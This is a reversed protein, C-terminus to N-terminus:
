EDSAERVVIRSGEVKTIKVKQDRGIFRGESVVDLYEGELEATGSPRLPTVTRATRGILELRNASSVYGSETDTADRLVIRNLLHLRKGFFKMMIVMGLITIVLATIVSVAMWAPDAGALIIGAVMAVGGLIGLIGGPVFLEAILLGVGALFLLLSEYGALGAVLHGYFFLLLAGAGMSGPVGFGPSYLEVVLGLGAISLLIPVVVPNTIFRALKESFTENMKVIEAGELGSTALLDDFSSVTGESYKVELAEDASLTLLKGKEARYQPLDIDANAMALAFEPDRGSSEAAAKMSALWASNAKDDAANGSQDIVQAAGIRGNPHMYIEDAHLALFAGASLADRNIYAIVHLKTEDMLKAIRGAADVFGGPTNIELVVTEAGAKEAESFSRNLFEYLGREVENELPVHYVKGSDAGAHPIAMLFLAAFLLLGRILRIGKM